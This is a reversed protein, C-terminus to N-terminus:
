PRDGTHERPRSAARLSEPSPMRASFWLSTGPVRDLPVARRLLREIACVGALARNLTPGPADLALHQAALKRAEDSVRGQGIFVRRALIGPLLFQFFYSARPVPLAARTFLARISRRDYRLRHGGVADYDSWLMQLAPVTGVLLGGPRLLAACARLFAEPEALHEVVDFLAVADFPGRHLLQPPPAEVNLSYIEAGPNRSAARRALLPHMEAGAMQYGAGALASLVTGTGCGVELVRGPPPLGDRRLFHLIQRNRARFWFHSRQSEELMRVVEPDSIDFEPTSEPASEFVFLNTPDEPSDGM